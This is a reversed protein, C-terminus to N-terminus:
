ENALHLLCLFIQRALLEEEKISNAYHYVREKIETKSMTDYNMVIYHLIKIRESNIEIEERLCKRLREDQYLQTLMENIIRNYNRM